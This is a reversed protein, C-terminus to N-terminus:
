RSRMAVLEEVVGSRCHKDRATVIEAGRGAISGALMM